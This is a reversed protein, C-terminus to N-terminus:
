GIESCTSIKLLNMKETNGFPAEAPQDSGSMPQEQSDPDWATRELGMSRRLAAQVQEQPADVPLGLAARVDAKGEATSVFVEHQALLKLLSTPTTPM